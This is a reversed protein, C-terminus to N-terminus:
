AKRDDDDDKNIRDYTALDHPRVVVDRLRQDSLAVAIPLPRGQAHRRQELLQRVAPVHIVDYGDL